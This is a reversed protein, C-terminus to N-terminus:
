SQNAQQDQSAKKMEEPQLLLSVGVLVIGCSNFAHKGTPM